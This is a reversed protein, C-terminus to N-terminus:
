ARARRKRQWVWGGNRYRIVGRKRLAQLARDMVRTFPLGDLTKGEYPVLGITEQIKRAPWPETAGALGLAIDARAKEVAEKAHMNM